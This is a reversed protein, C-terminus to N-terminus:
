FIHTLIRRAFFMENKFRKVKESTVKSPPLYKLAFEAGEQNRVKYVLGAGGEGVSLIFRYTDSITEFVKDVEKDLAVIAKPPDFMSLKNLDKFFSSGSQTAKSPYTLM